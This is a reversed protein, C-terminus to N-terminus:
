GGPRTDVALLWTLGAVMAVGLVCAVLRALPVIFPGIILSRDLYPVRMM